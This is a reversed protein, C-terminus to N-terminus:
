FPVEALEKDTVGLEEQKPAPPQVPEPDVGAIKRNTRWVWDGWKRIYNRDLLTPTATKRLFDRVREKLDEPNEGEDALMPALTDRWDALTVCSLGDPAASAEAPAKRGKQEIAVRLAKMALSLKTSIPKLKSADKAKAEEGSPPAVICSTIADGDEDRGIEVARLVFRLPQRMAEGNKIKGGYKMDNTMERIKRNDEDLAASVEGRKEGPLTAMRCVLISDVNATKSTVGRVKDGHSNMHDVLIISAGLVDRIREARALVAGIEKVSNEDSGTAAKAFTDIFIAKLPTSMKSAWHRCEEIFNDVSADANWLNLPGTLLVFPIDDSMSVNFHKRYAPIRKRRIGTPDEGAQYIIGGHATKHDFWSEGRSIAMALDITLFSKGSQSAGAVMAIEAEAILNKVLWKHQVGPADMDAWTVAGFKSQFPPPALIPASEAEFEEFSQPGFHTTM